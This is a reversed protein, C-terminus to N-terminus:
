PLKASVGKAIELMEAPNSLPTEGTPMATHLSIVVLGKQVVVFSGVGAGNVVAQFSRDGDVGEEFQVADDVQMSSRVLDYQKDAAGLSDFRTVALTIAKTADTSQHSVSCMTEVAPNNTTAPETLEQTLSVLEPGPDDLFGQCSEFSLSVQPPSTAVPEQGGADDQSPTEADTSCAVLLLVLAALSGVVNKM